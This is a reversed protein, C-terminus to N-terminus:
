GGRGRALLGGLVLFGRRGVGVRVDIRCRRWLRCVGGGSVLGVYGSVGGGGVYM